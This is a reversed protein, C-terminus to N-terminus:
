LLFIDASLNYKECITRVQPLTFESRGNVKKNAMTLSIGLLNAIEMQTIRHQVLWAKFTIKEGM